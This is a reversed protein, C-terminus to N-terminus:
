IWENQGSLFKLEYIEIWGNTTIIGNNVFMQHNALM